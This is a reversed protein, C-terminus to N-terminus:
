YKKTSLVEPYMQGMKAFLIASTLTELDIEYQILTEDVLSTFTMLRQIIYLKHQVSTQTLKIEQSEAKVSEALSIIQNQTFNFAVKIM